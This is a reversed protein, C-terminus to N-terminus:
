SKVGTRVFYTLLALTRRRSWYEWRAVHQEGDITLATEYVPRDYGDSRGVYRPVSGNLVEPLRSFDSASVARQGRAAEVKPDGHERLIHRAADTRLSFDFRWAVDDIQAAQDATLMGLTREGIEAPGDQPQLESAQRAIRVADAATSPLARYSQALADRQPAPLDEMFAKAVRYDWNGIKSALANVMDAVSAGPAYAWGKGVGVPSGTKPDIAQWGKPLKKAPDGGMRRIGAETRAGVVYCSCGWDSPPYRTAWFEHRPPLAIGNWSLHEPRPEESDGHRYVWWPYDGAQLQAFRGAAYSTYSNTRYITKVRWAEGRVSGEGTWGTWGNRAVVAKFDRRFTDIGQGESIAKDVAAALDSLLDAEMAGAVMFARDHAAGQLDDWRRTPVLNKLKGRFFAVQEAFPEGLVGSVASPHTPSRKAM